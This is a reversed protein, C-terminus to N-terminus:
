FDELNKKDQAAKEAAQREKEALTMVSFMGSIKDHQAQSTDNIWVDHFSLLPERWKGGGNANSELLVEIEADSFRGGGNPNQETVDKMYSILVCANDRFTAAILIGEKRFGLMATEKDISIPQGYRTVCEQPTEGLRAQAKVASIFILAALLTKM